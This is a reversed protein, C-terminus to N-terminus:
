CPGCVALLTVAGRPLMATQRIAPLDNMWGFASEHGVTTADDDSTEADDAGDAVRDVLRPAGDDRAHGTDSRDGSEVRGAVLRREGALYVSYPFM